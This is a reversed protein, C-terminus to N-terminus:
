MLEHVNAASALEEVAGASGHLVVFEKSTCALWICEMNHSM